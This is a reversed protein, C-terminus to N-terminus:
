YNPILHCFDCSKARSKERRGCCRWCLCGTWDPPSDATPWRPCFARWIPGTYYDSTLTFCCFLTFSVRYKRLDLATAIEWNVIKNAAEFNGDTGAIANNFSLLGTSKFWNEESGSPSQPQPPTWEGAWDSESYFPSLVVGNLAGSVAFVTDPCRFRSLYSKGSM